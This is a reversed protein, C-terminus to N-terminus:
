QSQHDPNPKTNPHTCFNIANGNVREVIPNCIRNLQRLIPKYEYWIRVMSQKYIM